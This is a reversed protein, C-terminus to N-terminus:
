ALRKLRVGHNPTLSVGRRVPREPQTDAYVVSFDRLITAIVLRLEFIALAEGLCRRVGGGFPLFEYPTYQRDLFRDPHFRLPDPYIAPNRHTIYICGYLNIGAPVSYGLIETAELTRRPVTMMVSPYLRMAENCVANLYPLRAVEAPDQTTQTRLEEVLRDRVEPHQSIWYMAWAISNATTEHGAILLTMLEDHLEDEDMANGDEDRAALMLSLIDTRSPDVQSRRARIEEIILAKAENRVHSFRTWSRFVGLDRQLVPLFLAALFLKSQFCATLEVIKAAIQRSRDSEDLGFVTQLIVDLAISQAIERMVFVQGIPQQVMQEHALQCIVDGYSRMRDGHFPPMLLKRERRHRQGELSFISREGVVPRLLNNAPASFQKAENNFLQKLGEPHSVLLMTSASGIVPANALDPAVQGLRDLFQAPDLIYGLKQWLRPTRLGPYTLPSTETM